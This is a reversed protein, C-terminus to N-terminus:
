YLTTEQSESYAKNPEVRILTFLMVGRREDQPISPRVTENM